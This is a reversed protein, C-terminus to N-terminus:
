LVDISSPTNRTFRVIGHRHLVQLNVGWLWIGLVVVTTLRYPLPLLLSFTDLTEVGADLDAM